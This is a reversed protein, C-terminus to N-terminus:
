WARWTNHAHWLHDGGTANAVPRPNGPSRLLERVLRRETAALAGLDDWQTREEESMPGFSPKPVSTLKIAAHVQVLHQRASLYQPNKLQRRGEMTGPRGNATDGLTPEKALGCASSVASSGVHRPRGAHAPQSRFGNHGVPLRKHPRASQTPPYKV